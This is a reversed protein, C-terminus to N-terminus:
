KKLPFLEEGFWSIDVFHSADRSDVRISSANSRCLRGRCDDSTRISTGGVCIGEAGARAGGAQRGKGFPVVVTPTM